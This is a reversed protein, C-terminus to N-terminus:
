TMIKESDAILQNLLATVTEGRKQIDDVLRNSKAETLEAAHESITIVREAIERVPSKMQDSMNYLFNTKMREGAKADEYAAQLVEGREKLVDTAQQMEGVRVALSKQMQRFHKQLSGVEDQHRTDPIPEDYSGEAIRHASRALERLPLFQKHIFLCCSVLLLLLGIIAIIFVMNQLRHYDGFIDGEPYIIGISWGLEGRARGTTETREFPKYFVYCDEGEMTVSRYGTEGSMMAHIADHEANNDLQASLEFANKNLFVSDPFVILEGNRGLLACFSNPSPKAEAVIKSLLTLSVDVDFMGVVQQDEGYIALRFTTVADTNAEHQHQSEIWGRIDTNLTASDAVWIFHTDVIYPNNDVLRQAYAEMKEPQHICKQMKYYVNGAAHEVSFLVNDIRNITTELTQAADSLAEERVAKRSFYFMVFLAAILLTALATIVRLSLRFSLTRGIYNGLRTM